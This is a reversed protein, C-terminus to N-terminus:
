VRGTMVPTKHDLYFDIFCCFADERPLYQSSLVGKPDVSLTGVNSTAQPWLLSWHFLHGKIPPELLPRDHCTRKRRSTLTRSFLFHGAMLPVKSRLCRELKLKTKSHNGNADVQFRPRGVSACCLHNSVGLKSVKQTPCLYGTDCLM